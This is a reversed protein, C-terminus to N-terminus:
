ELALDYKPPSSVSIVLRWGLRLKEEAEPGVWFMGIRRTRQKLLKVLAKFLLGSYSIRSFTEVAGAVLVGETFQGGPRFLALEPNLELDVAYSYGGKRLTIERVLVGEDPATLM